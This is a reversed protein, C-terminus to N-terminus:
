AFAIYADAYDNASNALQNVMYTVEVAGPVTYTHVDTIGAAALVSLAGAELENTIAANWATKVIAIRVPSSLQPVSALLAANGISAM